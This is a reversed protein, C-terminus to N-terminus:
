RCAFMIKEHVGQLPQVPINCPFPQMAVTLHFSSRGVCLAQPRCRVSLTMTDTRTLMKLLGLLVWPRSADGDIHQEQFKVSHCAFHRCQLCVTGQSSQVTISLLCSQEFGRTVRVWHAKAHDFQVHSVSGSSEGDIRQADMKPTLLLAADGPLRCDPCAM